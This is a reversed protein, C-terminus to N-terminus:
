KEMSTQEQNDESADWEQPMGTTGPHPSLHMGDPEDGKAETDKMATGLKRDVVLM